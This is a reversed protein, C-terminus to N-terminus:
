FKSPLNTQWASAEILSSSVSLVVTLLSFDPGLGIITGITKFIASNSWLTKDWQGKNEYCNHVSTTRTKMQVMDLKPFKNSQGLTCM